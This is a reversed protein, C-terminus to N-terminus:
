FDMGGERVGEAFAKIRGHYAYGNKDFVLKQINKAKCKEALEKGLRLCVDKGARESKKGFSHISVVTAGKVDDVVQAYLHRASRFVSLRMRESTGRVRNRTRKKRKLRLHNKNTEAM